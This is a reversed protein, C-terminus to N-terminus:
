GLQSSAFHEKPIVVSSGGKLSVSLSEHKQRSDSVTLATEKSRITRCSDASSIGAGKESGIRM